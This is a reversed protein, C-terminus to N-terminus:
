DGAATALLTEDHIGPVIVVDFRVVSMAYTWRSTTLSSRDVAAVWLEAEGWVAQEGPYVMAYPVRYAIEFQGRWTLPAFLFQDDARKAGDPALPWHVLLLALGGEHQCDDEIREGAFLRAIDSDSLGRVPRGSPWHARGRIVHREGGLVERTTPELEIRLDVRRVSEAAVNPGCAGSSPEDAFSPAPTSAGAGLIIAAAIAVWGRM